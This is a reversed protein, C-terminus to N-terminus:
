STKIFLALLTLKHYYNPMASTTDNRPLWSQMLVKIIYFHMPHVKHLWYPLLLKITYLHMPHVKHLQRHM